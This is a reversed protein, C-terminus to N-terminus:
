QAKAVMWPLPGGVMLPLTVLSAAGAAPLAAGVVCDILARVLDAPCGGDSRAVRDVLVAHHAVRGSPDVSLRLVLPGHYLADVLGVRALVDGIRPLLAAEVAGPALPGEVLMGAESIHGHMVIRGDLPDMSGEIRQVGHPMRDDFIALRNFDPPILDYLGSGAEADTMRSRFLDGEKVVITEGGRSQRGPLTLSYVYGFRGGVSDNHLGQSCGDVYVSLFPWTVYALGLRDAAWRTLAAHFRDVLPKPIVQEPNTRLYTYLGPIYWYNWVQHTERRHAQPDAFHRDVHGRLDRAEAEPLFDDFAAYPSRLAPHRLPEPVTLEIGLDELFQASSAM